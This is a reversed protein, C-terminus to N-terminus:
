IYYTISLLIDKRNTDLFLIFVISKKLKILNM